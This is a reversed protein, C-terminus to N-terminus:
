KVIFNMEILNLCDVQTKFARSFVSQVRLCFSLCEEKLLIFYGGGLVASVSKFCKVQYQVLNVGSLDEEEM